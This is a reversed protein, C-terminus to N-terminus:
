PVIKPFVKIPSNEFPFETVTVIVLLQLEKESPEGEPNSAILTPPIGVTQTHLSPYIKVSLPHTGVGGTQPSFWCETQEQAPVHVCLMEPHKHANSSDPLVKVPTIVL